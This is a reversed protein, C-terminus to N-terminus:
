QARRDDPEDAPDPGPAGTPEDPDAFEDAHEELLRRVRMEADLMHYQMLHQAEQGDGRLVAEAIRAHQEASESLRGPQSLNRYRLLRVRGDTVSFTDRLAESGAMDLLQRRRDEVLEVYRDVDEAEAAAQLEAVSEHFHRRQAPTGREAAWRAMLPELAGKIAYVENVERPSIRRVMVGIRPMITVLGEGSLDWLADRVPTRSVGFRQALDDISLKTGPPLEGSHIMARIRETSLGRASALRIRGATEDHRGADSRNTM